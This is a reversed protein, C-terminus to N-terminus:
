RAGKPWWGGIEAHAFGCPKARFTKGCQGCRRAPKRKTTKRKAQKM